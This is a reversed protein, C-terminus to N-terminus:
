SYLLNDISIQLRGRINDRLQDRYCARETDAYSLYSFDLVDRVRMDWSRPHHDLVRELSLTIEYYALCHCIYHLEILSWTVCSAYGLRQLYGELGALRKRLSIHPPAYSVLLADYGWIWIVGDEMLQLLHEKYFAM